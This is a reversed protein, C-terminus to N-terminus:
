KLIVLKELKEAVKGTPSTVKVRYIYVGKALQDGFEDLGNWPIGSSRFGDTTVMENITRVLRGSVTMIQIQTELQSCIQNHEFFFKTSTTFPNPYNLVHELTLEESEYVIFDITTESSNNNVDWVKIAVTHPGPEIDTFNFRVEGNQYSDIDSIYFDNLVFPTATEGDLVAILDHGIGNGVTNIGNLDFLKAILLPNEDTIGGNVFNEDNMFLEIDPGETDNIGNPDIGGIVVRNENGQADTVGNEAYFSLKGFDYSFDIDKPVIFTFEFYGNVVSAKGRYLKSTQVNFIRLPSSINNSLTQQEKPKDYVTPSIVGNFGTMIIGSNDAIHGKIVVRSLAKITDSEISPSLGNVSDTIIQLRPLAIKLAPDGILTFSRKNNSGAVGNKSQRIIEGFTRPQMNDDRKFVNEFFSRGTNTNVGFYVSRTTTMLAIAAGDPNISAWEGASVRDPDDYKTFECTATVLLALRNINRWGQIQPVTIVREEAVGVEGGHGVYNIVLAGNKIERDIAENVDPYREGGASTIQQFADLYLKQCNMSPHYKTVSDFQPEVDQDIFYGNEEDDAIQVYRNRWDGFTKTNGNEDCLESNEEYLSSGNRMYHEIKDVQDKAMENSSILLRGVGIDLDDITGISESDDLLGFYDDTVLAAIHDESNLVQYTVVYNNNNNVRNKPDYTGDGFLLLSKLRTTPETLGRDYFMKAFSKIATADIAGSSFENYIQETTVVHVSTGNARHLGALRNAQNLFGKNTVILYDVQALGHLNQYDVAGIRTPTFFSMGSATAWSTVDDTEISYEFNTGSLAGLINRPNHRDTVDWVFTQNTAGSISFMSVNGPGASNLDTFNFQDDMMTLSRRANLLIRDLYTLVDPSNRTVTMSLQIINPPSSMSFDVAGNLNRRYNGAGAGSPLPSSFLSLGGVSYSQSTGGASQSNSALSVSFDAPTATEINPINFTFTRQLQTDFLDGYWRQGGGVLSTADIEHVTYYSYSNVTNNVTSTTSPTDVIRSPTVNSNINIFYYSFDSYPNRQQDFRSNSLDLSWRHAGWGYFLIYDDDDFSGDGEGIIQIANQALDDTRPESNLEPLKGDGNGYIHIHQPNLGVLDIGCEELFTKDIKYIGDKDVRIKYWVGSGNQLVSNAVFDKTALYNEMEGKGVKLKISKIRVIQNNQRVFPFLNLTAHRKENAKSIGFDYTLQNVTIGQSSLYAIEVATAPETSELVFSTSYNSNGRLEKRWFFNPRNGDMNQNKIHPVLISQDGQHLRKEKQWDLILIETTQGIVINVMLFISLFLSLKLPNILNPLSIM